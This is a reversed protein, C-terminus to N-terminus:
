VFSARVTERGDVREFLKVLYKLSLMPRKVKMTKQETKTEVRDRRMEIPSLPVLSLRSKTMM